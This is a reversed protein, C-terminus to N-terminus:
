IWKKNHKNYIYFSKQNIKKKLSPPFFWTIMDWLLLPAYFPNLKKIFKKREIKYKDIATSLQNDHYKFGGLYSDVINLNYEQSFSFWLYYDGALRLSRLYNWDILDFADRHWFTSEQQIYPLWSGYIGSRIFEKRYINPTDIHIIQSSNNYNVRKGTLWHIDNESFLEVVLGLAAKHYFDGANCYGIISGRALAFGKTLGDYLGSDKESMWYDIKNQYKKIIDITNDTSGGDIIIYEVNEYTQGLVSEITEELHNEGNLVVTIISIIPKGTIFRDGASCNRLGGEIKVLDDELLIM